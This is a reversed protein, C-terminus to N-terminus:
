KNTGLREGKYKFKRISKWWDSNELYWKITFELGKDLKIKPNWKIKKFIKKSNLSYRLDHGPRDKVYYILSEYKKKNNRPKIKDLKSCISKVLQINTLEEKGGINYVDGIKGKFSINKIADISDNIYLWNRVNKGSGYVPLKKEELARLIILPILKEPFQYPGYNNSLRLIMCPFNYTHFYSYILHDASAKSASYPSSPNILSLENSKGTNVSGYVEDTSIQIFRFNKKNKIKKWYKLSSNLLSYVGLINTDVFTSPNDISRDVHTEAAFNIILNPKFKNIILDMKKKNGIDEKIFKYNINKEFESLNKKSAAYTLLDLNIVNNNSKIISRVYHSGIFGAGGCILINNRM